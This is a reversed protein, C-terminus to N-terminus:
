RPRATRFRQHDGSLPLGYLTAYIPIAVLCVLLGGSFMLVAINLRVIYGVALLAPSLDLGFAFVSRSTQWASMVTGPFMHLGTQAFKFGAATIGGLLLSRITGGQRYGAKLVEATALGEPFRLDSDLVFARRLPIAYLVGLIGGLTVLMTAEWYHFQQWVGLLILAPLTFIMGAALSEGASAATQVLNNELLHSHRFLRLIALSMVAAPISASVTMGVKLGLCANAAALLASLLIGLLIARATLENKFTANQTVDIGICDVAFIIM